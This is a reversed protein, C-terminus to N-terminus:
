ADMEPCADIVNGGPRLPPGDGTVPTSGIPSSTDDSVDIIDLTEIRGGTPDGTADHADGLNALVEAECARYGHCM